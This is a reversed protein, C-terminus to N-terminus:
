FFRVSEQLSSVKFPLLQRKQISEKRKGSSTIFNTNNNRKMNRCIFGTLLFIVSRWELSYVVSWNAPIATLYQILALHQSINEKRIVASASTVNQSFM